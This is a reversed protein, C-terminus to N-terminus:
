RGAILSVQTSKGDPGTEAWTEGVTHTAQYSYCQPNPQQAQPAPDTQTFCATTADKWAYTGKLVGGNGTHVEYSMDQNVFISTKSGDPSAYQVTNGYFNAFPDAYATGSLLLLATAAAIALRNM